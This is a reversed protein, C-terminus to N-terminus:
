FRYMLKPFFCVIVIIIGLILLYTKIKEEKTFHETYADFLGWLAIWWFVALIAPFIPMEPM